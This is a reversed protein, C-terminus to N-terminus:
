LAALFQIVRDALWERAEPQEVQHNAGPILGSLESAIGPKCFTKWRAVMSPVDVSSPVYQDQGSPLILVPKQLRGWSIALKEDALDSSFFDDDGGVSLLSHWRYATVPGSFGAFIKEKPMIVDGNGEKLLAEAHALSDAIMEPGLLPGFAERDSVCGQLIFGDVPSTGHKPDNYEMCDQCGTSHGMLVIKEKGLGRLYKVLASIENVDDALSSYGFGNFASSLRTEFVSYGLSPTEALKRGVSRVYGVTHPGDGLGGIFVLANRAPTAAAGLEYTYATGGSVAPYTHVTVPFLPEAM